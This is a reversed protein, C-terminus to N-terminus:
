GMKESLVWPINASIELQIAPTPFGEELLDCGSQFSVAFGEEISFAEKEEWFSTTKSTPIWPSKGQIIGGCLHYFGGYLVTGDPNDCNVYVECVKRMDVGLDSFFETVRKSLMSVAQEFNRCGKCSCGESVFSAKEYFQKTKNIDVEIKYQGFEFFKMEM